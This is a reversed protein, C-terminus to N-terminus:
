YSKILALLIEKNKELYEACQNTYYTELEEYYPMLVGDMMMEMNIQKGLQITPTTEIKFCCYVDNIREEIYYTNNKYIFKM